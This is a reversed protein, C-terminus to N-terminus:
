IDFDVPVFVTGAHKKFKHASAKELESSIIELLVIGICAPTTPLVITCHKIIKNSFVLSFIYSFYVKSHVM